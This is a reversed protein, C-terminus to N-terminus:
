SLSGRLHGDRPDLLGYRLSEAYRVVLENARPARLGDGVRALDRHVQGAFKRVRGQRHDALLEPSSIVRRHDVRLVLDRLEDALVARHVVKHLFQSRADLLCPSEPPGATADDPVQACRAEEEVYAEVAAERSALWSGGTRGM